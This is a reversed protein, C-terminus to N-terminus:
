ADVVTWGTPIGNGGSPWTTNADKVFTGTQDVSNLWNKVCNSASIDTALCKVYNLKRCYNFMGNYCTSTLVTALLEPATTLEDCGYFMQQYCNNTLTTAPLEPSTTLSDCSKFMYAYCYNALTTAPLEPASTLSNCGIFMNYYCYNALTTAPLEPATVLLTCGSFMAEYSNAILATGPLILNSADVVNSVKLLNSFSKFGYVVTQGSFNDDYLLSMANGYVNFTIATNGSFMNTANAMYSQQSNGKFQVTDGSSLNLTTAGTTTTWTDGGDLSYDFDALNINFNGSELAEITFPM